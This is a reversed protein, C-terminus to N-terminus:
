IEMEFMPEVDHKHVTLCRESVFKKKRTARQTLRWPVKPTGAVNKDRFVRAFGIVSEQFANATVVAGGLNDFARVLREIQLVNEAPFLNWQLCQAVSEDARDARDGRGFAEFSCQLLEARADIQGLAIDIMM